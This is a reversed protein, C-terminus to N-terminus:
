KRKGRTEPIQKLAFIARWADNLNEIERTIGNYTIIYKGKITKFTLLTEKM